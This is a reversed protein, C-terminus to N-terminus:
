YFWVILVTCNERGPSHLKGPPLCGNDHRNANESCYLALNLGLPERANGREPSTKAGTSIALHRPWRRQKTLVVGDGTSAELRRM